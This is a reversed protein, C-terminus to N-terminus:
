CAVRSKCKPVDLFRLPFLPDYFDAEKVEKTRQEAFLGPRSGPTPVDRTLMPVFKEDKGQFDHVNFNASMPNSSSNM